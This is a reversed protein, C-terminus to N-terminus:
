DELKVGERIVDLVSLKTGDETIAVVKGDIVSVKVRHGEYEYVGSISTSAIM